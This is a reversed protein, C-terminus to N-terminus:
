AAAGGEQRERVEWVRKLCEAVDSLVRFIAKLAQQPDQSSYAKVYEWAHRLYGPMGYLVCMTAAFVEAVIEQEPVQGGRLPRFSNHVAHGLEHFWTLVDHSHLVIRKGGQWAYFGYCGDRGAPEYRVERVGFAKAVEVLPPPEPPAYDPVPLPKGETDEYRFVPVHRFGVVATREEEREEGTEPDTVREVKKKTVPAFIYIAKAGKRVYRGVEQWQRYGRADETGAALMLLRNGLSWKDCPRTIGGKPRILTRAVAEPLDGSEFMKLLRRM